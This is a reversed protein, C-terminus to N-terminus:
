PAMCVLEAGQYGRCGCALGQNAVITDTCFSCSVIGQVFNKKCPNPDFPFMPEPQTDPALSVPPQSAADAPGPNSAPPVVAAGQVSYSGPHMSNAGSSFGATVINNNNNLEDGNHTVPASLVAVPADLGQGAQNLGSDAGVPGLSASLLTAGVIGLVCFFLRSNSKSFLRKSILSM